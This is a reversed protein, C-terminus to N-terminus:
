AHAAALQRNLWDVTLDFVERRWDPHRFTHDGHLIHNLQGRAGLAEKLAGAEELSILPDATSQIVLGPGTYNRLAAVPDCAYITPLFDPGVRLGGVIGASPGDIAIERFHRQPQGVANWMVAARVRPDQGALLATVCGGMSLGVVGIRNPDVGPQQGIWELAAAADAVETLVTMEEFTGESDGSGYFDFRLAVFGAQALRRAFQVFLMDHEVHNGTFGHLLVVTPAPGTAPTPRHIMGRLVGKPGLFAAPLEDPM